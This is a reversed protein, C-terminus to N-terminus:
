TAHARQQTPTIMSSCWVHDIDQGDSHKAAVAHTPVRMLHAHGRGTKPHGQGIQRLSARAIRVSRRHCRALRLSHRQGRALRLGERPPLSETPHRLKKYTARSDGRLLKARIERLANTLPIIRTDRIIVGSVIDKYVKRVPYMNILM